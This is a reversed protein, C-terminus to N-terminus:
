KIILVFSRLSTGYTVTEETEAIKKVMYKRDTATVKTAAITAPLQVQAGPALAIKANANGNVTALVLKGSGNEELPQVTVTTTADELYLPASITTTGEVEITPAKWVDLACNTNSSKWNAVGAGIIQGGERLVMKGAVHGNDSNSLTQRYEGCDLTGAIDLNIIPSDNASNYELSDTYTLTLKAGAGIVLDGKLGKTYQGFKINTAGQIELGRVDAGKVTIDAQHYAPATSLWKLGVGNDVYVEIQCDYADRARPVAITAFQNAAESNARVYYKATYGGTMRFAGTGTMLSGAYFNYECQDPNNNYNLTFTALDLTGYIKVKVNTGIQNNATLTLKTDMPIEIVSNKQGPTQIQKSALLMVDGSTKLTAGSQVVITNVVTGSVTAVTGNELNITVSSEESGDVYDFRVDGFVKVSTVGTPYAGDVTVVVPNEATGKVTVEGVWSSDWGTVSGSTKVNQGNMTITIVGDAIAVEFDVAEGAENVVSIQDEGYATQTTAGTIFGDAREAASAVYVIPGAIEGLKAAHADGALKLTGTGTTTVARDGTVAGSLTLTKGEAINFIGTDQLTVASSITASDVAKLTASGSLTLPVNAWGLSGLEFVATGALTASHGSGSGAFLGKAKVVADGSVNMRIPASWFNFRSNQVDLTGGSIDFKSLAGSWGLLFGNGNGGGTGTAKVTVVGGAQEYSTGSVGYWIAASGEDPGIQLEGGLVKISEDGRQGSQGATPMVVQDGDQIQVTYNAGPNNSLRAKKFEYVGAGRNLTFGTSYDREYRYALGTHPAPLVTASSEAEIIVKGTLDKLDLKALATDTLASGALTLTKETGKIALSDAAIETDLTLTVDAGLTIEGIEGAEPAKDGIWAIASYNVSSDVTAKIISNVYVVYSKNIALAKITDIDSLVTTDIYLGAASVGAGMFVNRFNNGGLDASVANDQALVETGDLYIRISMPSSTNTKTTDRTITICVYHWAEGTILSSETTYSTSNWTGNPNHKGIKLKGESTVALQYGNNTNGDTSFGYVIKDGSEPLADVKFWFAATHPQIYGWSPHAFLQAASGTGGTLAAQSTYATAKFGGEPVTIAGYEGQEILVDGNLNNAYMMDAWAAGTLATCAITLLQTILKKM